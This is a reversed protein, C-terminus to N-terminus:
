HVLWVQSFVIKPSVFRKCLSLLHNNSHFGIWRHQHNSFCLKLTGLYKIPCALLVGERVGDAVGERLGDNVGLAVGLAV